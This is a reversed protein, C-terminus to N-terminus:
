RRRWLPLEFNTGHFLDLHARRAYMPLGVSWWHGRLSSSKPNIFSLNAVPGHEAVSGHFPKPSVLEFQDAPYALALARALEFTYHGVGTLPESLSYGDLGIRM